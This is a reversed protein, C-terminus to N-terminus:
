VPEPELERETSLDVVDEAKEQRHSPGHVLVFVAGALLLGAGVFMALRMGSTFSNRALAAVALGPAGLKAAIAFAVAPAQKVQVAMQAPMRGLHGSIANRYGMNFMSGMLAIGLATGIERTTDNVASAVGQKSLPLSSVIANTAPTTSLGIGIALLIQSLLLLGYGSSPGLAAFTLFSVAGVVLGTGCVLKQGFRESLPAALAAVPIIVVTMPLLSVAAKLPSYGLVLQLYQMVVIMLGFMAMFLVLLSASGTSFGRFRFLRPDLLPHEIHLEWVVFAVAMAVAFVLAGMTLPDTWGRMPGEIIGLVLSGIGLASFVTGLPDLGVHERARTDPVFALIAVFTLAAVVATVYFVSQWSHSNLLWGACLLGITGGAAAFGAWIGVARAREEPPFVSTITSLTGPMILAAGIGTIARFTILQGGSNAFASILSFATYILMGVLLTRRRGFRDGLAGAFLLLAALAVAYADAVWTLNTQSLGLDTGIAPLAVSMMAVGAIVLVLALCMAFLVRTRQRPTFREHPEPEIPRTTSSGNVPNGTLSSGTVSAGNVILVACSARHSVTNPVTGLVREGDQMCSSGVVILDASCEDAVHLINDAPSGPLAHTRVNPIADFERSLFQEADDRSIRAGSTAVSGTETPSEFSVVMHVTADFRSGLETAHRAADLASDAPLVGCVINTFV